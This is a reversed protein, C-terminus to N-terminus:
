CIGTFAQCLTGEKAYHVPAHLTNRVSNVSTKQRETKGCAQGRADLGVVQASAGVPLDLFLRGCRGGRGGGGGGGGGGAGGGADGDRGGRGVGRQEDVAGVGAGGEGEGDGDGGGDGGGGGGGGAKEDRGGRGVGGGGGGGGEGDGDGGGDGGGGGEGVVQGPFWLLVEHPWHAEHGCPHPSRGPVRAM